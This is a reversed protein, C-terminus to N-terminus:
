DAIPRSEFRHLYAAMSGRSVPVQPRYTGDIFGNAIGASVLWEIEDYFEHTRPVDPFTRTDAPAAPNGAFRNLFAALSGRTVPEGPRFMGDDYGTAFGKSVAWIIEGAFPHTAPVDPFIAEPPPVFPPSGALRYLLALLSGRTVDSAPRFTGDQYGSALETAVLWAVEACFPHTGTVDPFVGAAPPPGCDVPLAPASPSSPPGTGAANAATVVFTTFTGNTLGTVVCSTESTTCTMDGPSSVVVYSTIPLGGDDPATWSVVAHGDGGVAAVDTPAGPPGLPSAPPSLASPMGSWVENTAVVSVTYSETSSLGTITCALAGETACTAEGPTATAVYGVVPTGGTDAPAQWSVVLAGLAPTLSVATPPGPPASPTVPDSPASADSTGLTNTATVSFTYSTGNNLDGVTCATQDATSCTAGGPSATVEYGLIPLGGLLPPTWSVHAERDGPDAVVDLPPSPITWAVITVAPSAPGEGLINVAAFTLEQLSTPVALEFTTAWPVTVEFGDAGRVVIETPPHGGHSTPPDITIDVTTDDIGDTRLVSVPRPASPVFGPQAALRYLAGSAVARTAPDTPAYHNAAWPDVLHEQTVWALADFAAGEVSTLDTPVDLYAPDPFPGPPAGELRHLWQALTARDLPVAPGFGGDSLGTTIGSSALWEIERFFLHTTPVDDFTPNTPPVTDPDGAFRFLFAAGAARTVTVDPRFTGDTYGATIGEALMWAVEHCFPHDAPVDVFLDPCDDRQPPAAAAVGIGPPGLLSITALAVLLVVAPAVRRGQAPRRHMPRTQCVTWPWGERADPRAPAEPEAPNPHAHDGM